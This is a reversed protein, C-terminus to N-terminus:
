IVSNFIEQKRSSYINPNDGYVLNYFTAIDKKSYIKVYCTKNKSNKRRSDYVISSKIGYNAFVKVLDKAFLESGTTISVHVYKHGKVKNIFASGDGDFIGRIIDPEYQIDQPMRINYTKREGVGISKLYKIDNQNYSTVVYMPRRSKKAMISKFQKKPTMLNHIKKMVDEESMTVDLRLLSSHSSYSVCGDAIILGLIYASDRNFDNFIQNDPARRGRLGCSVSCYKQKRSPSTKFEKKCFKCKSIM